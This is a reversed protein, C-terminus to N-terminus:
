VYELKSLDVRPRVGDGAWIEMEFIRGNVVHLTAETTGREKQQRATLAVHDIRGGDAESPAYHAAPTSEDVVLWVSPCGCSCVAEVLAAAAQRSLEPKALPHGLMHEIIAREGHTLARPAPLGVRQAPPRDAMAVTQGVLHRELCM